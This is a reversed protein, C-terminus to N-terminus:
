DDCWGLAEAFTIVRGRRLANSVLAVHRPDICLGALSQVTSPEAGRDVPQTPVSSASTDASAPSRSATSPTPVTTASLALGAALLVTCASRHNM